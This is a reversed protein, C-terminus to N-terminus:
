TGPPRGLGDISPDETTLFQGNENWLSVHYTVPGIADSEFKAVYMRLNGTGNQRTTFYTSFPGENPSDASFAPYFFALTFDEPLPGTVELLGDDGQHLSLPTQQVHLHWEGDVLTAEIKVWPSTNIVTCQNDVTFPGAKILNSEIGTVLSLSYTFSQVNATNGKALLNSPNVSRVAQFPGFPEDFQILLAFGPPLSPSVIWSVTDKPDNLTITEQMSDALSLIGNEEDFSVQVTQHAM